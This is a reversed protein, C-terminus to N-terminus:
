GDARAGAGRRATECADLRAIGRMLAAGAKLAARTQDAAAIRALVDAGDRAACAVPRAHGLRGSLGGFARSCAMAAAPVGSSFAAVCAPMRPMQPMRARAFFDLGAMLGSGTIGM